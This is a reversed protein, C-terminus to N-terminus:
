PVLGVDMACVDFVFCLGKSSVVRARVEEGPNFGRRYDMGGAALLAAFDARAKSDKM